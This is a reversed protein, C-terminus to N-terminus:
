NSTFISYGFGFSVWPKSQYIWKDTSNDLNDDIGVSVALQIKNWQGLVTLASTASSRTATGTDSSNNKNLTISSPGFSVLFAISANGDSKKFPIAVGVAGSLSLSPEFIGTQPRYKFPFTFAGVIPAIKAQPSAGEALAKYDSAKRSAGSQVLFSFQAHTVNGWICALVLSLSFYWRKM